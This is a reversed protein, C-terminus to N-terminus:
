AAYLLKGERKVTAPLSAESGSLWEFRPAGMVLIDKALPLGRLSRRGRVIFEYSRAIDYPLLIMFDYDSDPGWDGRAKSGFLYIREPHLEEVLRRVVEDLLAAETADVPAPQLITM